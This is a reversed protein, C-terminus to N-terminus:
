VGIHIIENWFYRSVKSQDFLHHLVHVHILIMYLKSLWCWWKCSANNCLYRSVKMTKTDAASFDEKSLGAKSLVELKKQVLPRFSLGTVNVEWTSCKAFITSRQCLYILCIFIDYFARCGNIHSWCYGQGSLQPLILVERKYQGTNHINNSYITM